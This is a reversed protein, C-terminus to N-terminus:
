NYLQEITMEDGSYSLGKERSVTARQAEMQTLARELDKQTIVPEKCYGCDEHALMFASQVIEQLYAGSFKDTRKMLSKLKINKTEFPTLYKELIALRSAEDPYDFKLRVDFRGPRDTLAWDLKEPHNTTALTVVGNNDEVGALCNLFEGLLPHDGEDRGLGGLTDIDELIVVSPSLRRAMKYLETIQGVDTINDRSVYLVTADLNNMLVKCSLTKGTGPPGALLVGRSGRLGKSRYLEVSDIFKVLNRELIQRDETKIVIDSWNLKPTDLMKFDATFHAGKLLGHNYFYDEVVEWFETYNFCSSRFQFVMDVEYEDFPTFMIVFREEPNKNSQVYMVLKHPVKVTVDGVKEDFWIPATMTDGFNYNEARSITYDKNIIEMLAEMWFIYSRNHYYKRKSEIPQTEAEDVQLFQSIAQDVKDTKQVKTALYSLSEGLEDLDATIPGMPTDIEIRSM